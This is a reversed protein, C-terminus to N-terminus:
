KGYNKIINNFDALTYPNGYKAILLNFDALNVKGDGNLDGRISPPNKITFNGCDKQSYKFNLTQLETDSFNQDIRTLIFTDLITSQSPPLSLPKTSCSLGRDFNTSCGSTHTFFQFNIAPYPSVTVKLNNTTTLHQTSTNTVEIGYVFVDGPNSQAINTIDTNIRYEPKFFDQPNTSIPNPLNTATYPMKYVVPRCTISTSPDATPPPNITFIASDISKLTNTDYGIAVVITSPDFKVETIGPKLARFKLNAILNQGFIGGSDLAVGYTARIQNNQATAPRIVTPFNSTPTLSVFSLLESDYNIVLDVGTTKVNNPSNLIISLSIDSQPIINNGLPPTLVLESQASPNITTLEAITVPTTPENNPLSAVFIGSILFSTLLIALQKKM